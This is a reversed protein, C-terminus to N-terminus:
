QAGCAPTNVDPTADPYFTRIGRNKIVFVAKFSDGEDDAPVTYLCAKKGETRPGAQEFARTAHLFIDAADLTYPYGKITDERVNEQWLYQVGLTYILGEAIEERGKDENLPGGWGNEQMQLYRGFYHLGGMKSGAPEGCFIHAFGKSRSWIQALTAIISSQSCDGFLGCGLEDKLLRIVPEAEPTSLLAEIKAAGIGSGFEGCTELVKEGFPSIQPAPPTIDRMQNKPFDVKVPNHVEDFFPPFSRVPTEGSGPDEGNGDSTVVEAECPYTSWVGCQMPVWRQSPEAGPVFIRLYTGDPKNRELTKYIQGVNLHINGPNERRLKKTAACAEKAELYGKAPVSATAPMFLLGLGILIAAPTKTNTHNMAHETMSYRKRLIGKKHRSAAVPYGSKRPISIIVTCRLM